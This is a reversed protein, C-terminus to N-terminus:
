SPRPGEAAAARLAQWVQQPSAPMDIHRVRLPALADIIAAPTSGIPGAEGIGEAGLPHRDPEPDFVSGSPFDPVRKANALRLLETLCLLRSM